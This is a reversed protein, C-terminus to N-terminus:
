IGQSTRAIAARYARLSEEAERKIQDLLMRTQDSAEPGQLDKSSATPAVVWTVDEQDYDTFGHSFSSERRSFDIGSMDAESDDSTSSRLHQAPYVGVEERLLMIDDVISPLMRMAILHADSEKMNALAEQYEVRCHQLTKRLQKRDIPSYLIGQLEDSATDKLRSGNMEGQEEGDQLVMMFTELDMSWEKCLLRLVRRQDLGVEASIKLLRCPSVKGEFLM